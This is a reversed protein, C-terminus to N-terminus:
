MTQSRPAKTATKDKATAQFLLGKNSRKTLNQKEPQNATKVILKIRLIDTAKATVQDINKGTMTMGRTVVTKASTSIRKTPKLLSFVNKNKVTIAPTPKPKPSSISM